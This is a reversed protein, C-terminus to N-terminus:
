RLAGSGIFAPTGGGLHITSIPRQNLCGTNSWLRMEDCLSDVYREIHEQAHAGLKFSYSDCFGCKNRCFPIHMYISMPKTVSSNHLDERLITWASAGDDDYKRQAWLPLPLRWTNVDYQPALAKWGTLIAKIDLEDSAGEFFNAFLPAKM